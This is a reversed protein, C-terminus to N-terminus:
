RRIRCWKDRCSSIPSAVAARSHESVNDAGTGVLSPGQEALDPLTDRNRLFPRDVRIRQLLAHQTHHAAAALGSLRRQRVQVPSPDGTEVAVPGSAQDTLEHGPPEDGPASM